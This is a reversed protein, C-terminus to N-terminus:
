SGPLPARPGLDSGGIGIQVVTDFVKGTSGKIDGKHVKEAFDAIRKKQENYFAGLDSGDEVVPAITQGRTLQHLVMRNEGTNMRKGSLIAMYKQILEQELSLEALIDVIEDTVAKASYNYVLGGGAKIENKKIREVSLLAKLSPKVCQKLRNYAATKDLNVYKPESM